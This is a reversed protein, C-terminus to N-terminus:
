RRRLSDNVEIWYGDPDRLYIQRVGDTRTRSVGGPRDDSGYWAVQHEALRKMIPELDECALAFHVEDDGQVPATRGGAIHLEGGRGFALWRRQPSASPIERMGLVDRYFRVSVVDDAVHLSVHELAFGRVVHEDPVCGSVGAAAGVFLAFAAARAGVAVAAGGRAENTHRVNAM